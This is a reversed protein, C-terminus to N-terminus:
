MSELSVDQLRIQEEGFELMIEYTGSPLSCRFAGDADIVLECTKNDTEVDVVCARGLDDTAQGIVNWSGDHERECLVDIMVDGFEYAFQIRNQTDGGRYGIAPTRSDFTRTALFARGRDFWRELTSTQRTSPMINFARSRIAIPTPTSDDQSITENAMRYIAFLQRAQSDAEIRPSLVAVQEDSLEGAACALVQTVDPSPSTM